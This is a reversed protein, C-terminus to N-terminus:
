GETPDEGLRSTDSDGRSPAFLDDFIAPAGGGERLIAGVRHLAARDHARLHALLRAVDRRSMLSPDASDLELRAILVPVEDGCAALLAGGLRGRGADDVRDLLAAAEQEGLAADRVHRVAEDDAM